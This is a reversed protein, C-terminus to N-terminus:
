KEAAYKRWSASVSPETKDLDGLIKEKLEATSIEEKSDALQIAAGGVEEVLENIRQESLGAQEAAKSIANKIKEPDFPVKSGDNKIVESTM